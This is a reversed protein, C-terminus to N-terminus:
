VGRSFTRPQQEREGPHAVQRTRMGEPHNGTLQASDGERPHEDCPRELRVRVAVVRHGYRIEQLVPEAVRRMHEPEHARDDDEAHGGDVDCRLQRCGAPGELGEQSRRVLTSHHDTRRDDEVVRRDPTELGDGVAVDHLPHQHHGAQNQQRGDPDHRGAAPPPHSRREGLGIRGKELRHARVPESSRPDRAGHAEDCDSEGEEAGGVQEGAEDGRAM